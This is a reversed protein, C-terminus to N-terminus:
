ISDVEKRPRMVKAEEHLKSQECDQRVHGQPLVPGLDVM